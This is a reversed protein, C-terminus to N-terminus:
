SVGLADLAAKAHRLGALRMHGYNYFAVGTVGAEEVLRRL